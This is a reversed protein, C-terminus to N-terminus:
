IIDRNKIKKLLLEVIKTIRYSALDIYKKFSHISSKNTLDSIARIILFPKKFNYCTQAVATSEMEVAVASPFYNQIAIMVNQKYIFSDGTLILGEHYTYNLKEVCKKAISVLQTNTTFFIPYKPIQGIHYNFIKLNVDYYCAKNPLVIDGVQLKANLIGAAGISIILDPKYSVLIIMTAICASVKGIGSEILIIDVGYLCGTYCTCIGIIKTKCPKM